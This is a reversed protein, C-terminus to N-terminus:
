TASVAQEAPPVPIGPRRALTTVVGVLLTMVAAVLFSLISASMWSAATFDIHRGIWAWASVWWSIYGPNILQYAAFGVAWPLLM